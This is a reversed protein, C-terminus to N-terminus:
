RITPRQHAAATDREKRLCEKVRVLARVGQTAWQYEDGIMLGELAPGAM